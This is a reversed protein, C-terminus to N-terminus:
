DKNKKMKEAGICITYIFIKLIFRNRNILTDSKTLYKSYLNILDLNNEDLIRFELRSTQSKDLDIAQVTAFNLILQNEPVTFKYYEFQVQGLENAVVQTQKFVPSNDNVDTLIVRLKFDSSLQNKPGSGEEQEEERSNDSLRIVLDYYLVAECDLRNTVQLAYYYNGYQLIIPNLRFSATTTTTNESQLELTSANIYTISILTASLSQGNSLPSDMDTISLYALNIPISSNTTM